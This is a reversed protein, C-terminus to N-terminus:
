FSTSDCRPTSLGMTELWPLPQLPLDLQWTVRAMSIKVPWMFLKAGPNLSFVRCFTCGWPEIRM